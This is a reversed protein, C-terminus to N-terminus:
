DQTTIALDTVDDPAVGDLEVEFENTNTEIVGDPSEARIVFKFTQNAKGTYVQTTTFDQLLTETRAFRQYTSYDITGTGSDHYFRFHSAESGYLWYFSFNVKGVSVNRASIISTQFENEVDGPVSPIRSATPLVAVVIYDNNSELAGRLAEIVFLWTGAALGTYTHSRYTGRLTTKPVTKDISGSGNNSYIRFWDPAGQSSVAWSLTINSGSASITLDLPPLEFAAIATTVEQGDSVNELDDQTQVRFQYTGADLPKTVLTYTWFKNMMISLSLIYTNKNKPLDVSDDRFNRDWRDRPIISSRHTHTQIYFM